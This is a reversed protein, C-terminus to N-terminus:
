LNILIFTLGSLQNSLRGLSSSCRRSGSEKIESSPIPYIEINRTPHVCFHPPLSALFASCAGRIQYIIQMAEIDKTLCDTMFFSRSLLHCLVLFMFPDRFFSAKCHIVLSSQALHANSIPPYEGRREEARSGLKFISSRKTRMRSLEILRATPGHSPLQLSFNSGFHDRESGSDGLIESLPIFSSQAKSVSMSLIAPLLTQSKPM